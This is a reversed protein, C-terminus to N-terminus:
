LLYPDGRRYIGERIKYYLALILGVLLSIVTVIPLASPGCEQINLWLDVRRFRARGRVLAGLGLLAEGLFVLYGDIWYAIRAKNDPGLALFEECTVEIPKVKQADQAEQGL